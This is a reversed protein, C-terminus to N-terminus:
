NNLGRCYTLISALHEEYQSQLIHDVEPRLTTSQSHGVGQVQLFLAGAVCFRVGSRSSYIRLGIGLVEFGLWPMANLASVFGPSRKAARIGKGTSTM